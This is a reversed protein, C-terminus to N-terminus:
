FSTNPECPPAKYPDSAYAGVDPARVCARGADTTTVTSVYADAAKNSGVFSGRALAPTALTATALLAAVLFNVKQMENEGNIISAVLSRSPLAVLDRAEL